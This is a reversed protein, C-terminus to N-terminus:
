CKSIIDNLAADWSLGLDLRSYLSPHSADMKAAYDVARKVAQLYRSDVHGSIRIKPSFQLSSFLSPLQQSLQKLVLLTALLSCLAKYM